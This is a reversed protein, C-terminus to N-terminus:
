VLVNGTETAEKLSLQNTLRPGNSWEGKGDISTVIRFGM